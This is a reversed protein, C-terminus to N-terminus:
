PVVELDDEVPTPFLIRNIWIPLDEQFVAYACGITPLRVAGSSVNEVGFPTRAQWSPCFVIHKDTKRRWECIIHRWTHLHATFVAETGQKFKQDAESLKLHWATRGGAQELYFQAGSIKHTFMIVHGAIELRKSVGCFEGGLDEIIDEEASYYQEGHYNSGRVGRKKCQKPLELRELLGEMCAKQENAIITVAEYGHGKRNNGDVLDGVFLVVDPRLQKTWSCLKFFSKNMERQLPTLVVKQTCAKSGASTLPVDPDWPSYRSGGHTDSLFLAIKCRKQSYEWPLIPPMDFILNPVHLSDAVDEVKKWLQM